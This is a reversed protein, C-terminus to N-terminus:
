RESPMTLEDAELLFLCRFDGLTFFEYDILATILTSLSFDILENCSLRSAM